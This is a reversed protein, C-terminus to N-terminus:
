EKNSYTLRHCCILTGAAECFAADHPLHSIDDQAHQRARPSQVRSRDRALTVDDLRAEHVYAGELALRIKNRGPLLHPRKACSTLAQRLHAHTKHLTTLTRPM